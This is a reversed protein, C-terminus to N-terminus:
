HRPLCQQVANALKLWATVFDKQDSMSENVEITNVPKLRQVVNDSAGHGLILCMTHQPRQDNLYKIQAITPAQEHDASLAGSYKLDMARELYQFADHFAWYHRLKRGNSALRTADLMRKSFQQANKWYTTKYEPHQQSRLSAIFFAIRIANNPELWVHTDLSNAIPQGKVDRMPLTQMLHSDLVSIANKQTGLLKQLPAEHQVGFWLILEAQTALQRTKPTIQVDHGTQQPSLLLTPEEVGKTVDKAILYLPYTSLVLGSVTSKKDDLDKDNSIDKSCALSPMLLSFFLVFVLSQVIRM